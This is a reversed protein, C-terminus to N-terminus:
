VKSTNWKSLDPLTKLSSCESFLYKLNEVKSIDWKSIDPIKKLSLCEYFLGCM